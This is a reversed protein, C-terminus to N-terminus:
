NSSELDNCSFITKEGNGDTLVHNDLTGPQFSDPTKWKPHIFVCQKGLKKLGHGFRIGWISTVSAGSGAIFGHRIGKVFPINVYIYM